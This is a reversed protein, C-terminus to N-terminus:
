KKKEEPPKMGYVKIEKGVVQETWVYPVLKGTDDPGVVFKYTNGWPDSFAKKGNEFLQATDFLSQPWKNNMLYYAKVGQVIVRANAAALERKGNEEVTVVMLLPILCFVTAM